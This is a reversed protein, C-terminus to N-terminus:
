GNDLDVEIAFNLINFELSYITSGENYKYRTIDWRFFQLRFNEKDNEKWMNYFNITISM